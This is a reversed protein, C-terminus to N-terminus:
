CEKCYLVVDIVTPFSSKLPRDHWLYNALYSIYCNFDILFTNATSELDGVKSMADDLNNM